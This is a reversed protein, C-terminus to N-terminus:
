LMDQKNEQMVYDPEVCAFITEWGPEDSVRSLFVRALPAYSTSCAAHMCVWCAVVYIRLRARMGLASKIKNEM